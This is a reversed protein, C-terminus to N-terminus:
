ISCYSFYDHFIPLNEVDILNFVDEVLIFDSFPKESWKSFYKLECVSLEYNSVIRM